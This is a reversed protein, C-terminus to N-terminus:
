SDFYDSGLSQLDGEVLFVDYLDNVNFGYSKLVNELYDPSIDEKDVELSFACVEPSDLVFLVIM